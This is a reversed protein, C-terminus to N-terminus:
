KNSKKGSEQPLSMNSHVTGKESSKSFGMLKPNNHKWKWEKRHMNQRKCIKSQKKKKKGENQAAHTTNINQLDIRQWNSWKWNNEGIRQM